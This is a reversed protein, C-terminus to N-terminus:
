QQQQLTGLCKRQQLVDIIPGPRSPVPVLWSAAPQELQKRLARQIVDDVAVAAGRPVASCSSYFVLVPSRSVHCAAGLMRVREGTLDEFKIFGFGRPHGTYKDKM